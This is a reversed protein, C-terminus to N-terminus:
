RGLGVERLACSSGATVNKHEALDPLPYVGTLIRQDLAQSEGTWKYYPHGVFVRYLILYATPITQPGYDPLWAPALM